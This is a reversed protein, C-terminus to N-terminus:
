MEMELNHGWCSNTYVTLTDFSENGELLIRFYIVKLKLRHPILGGSKKYGFQIMLLRVFAVHINLVFVKIKKSLCHLRLVVELM